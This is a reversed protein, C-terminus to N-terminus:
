DALNFYWGDKQFLNVYDISWVNKGNTWYDADLIPRKVGGITSNDVDDPYEFKNSGAAMSLIIYHPNAYLHENETGKYDYKLTIHGDRIMSVSEEDWQVAFTHFQESMMREPRFDKKQDGWFEMGSDNKFVSDITVYSHKETMGLSDGQLEGRLTEHIVSVYYNAGSWCEMVDFELLDGNPTTGSDWLWFCHWLGDGDALKSSIEALGYTFMVKRRSNMFTGYFYKDDYTAAQHLVGDKIYINELKDSRYPIMGYFNGLSPEAYDTDNWFQKNYSEGEDFEDGWIFKYEMNASVYHDDANEIKLVNTAKFDDIINQLACAISYSKGGNIYIKKGDNKVVYNDYQNIPKVGERDCNGIIIEREAAAANDRVIKIDYGGKENINNVLEEVRSVVLYSINYKPLVFTYNSVSVDNLNIDMFNSSEDCYVFKDGAKMSGTTCYLEIFKDVATPIVAPSIANIVIKGNIYAIAYDNRRGKGTEYILDLCKKSEERNTNGILIEGVKNEEADDTTNKLSVGCKEKIAKFIKVALPNTDGGDERVISFGKAAFEIVANPDVSSVDSTDDGGGCGILSVAMVLVLCFALVKKM